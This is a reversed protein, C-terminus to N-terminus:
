AAEDLDDMWNENELMEEELGCDTEYLDDMWCESHLREDKLVHGMKLEPLFPIIPNTEGSRELLTDVIM